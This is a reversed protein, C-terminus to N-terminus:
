DIDRGAIPELFMLRDNNSIQKWVNITRYAIM